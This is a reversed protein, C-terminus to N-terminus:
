GYSVNPLQPGTPLEAQQQAAGPPLQPGAPAPLPVPALPPLQVAPRGHPQPVPALPPLNLTPPAHQPHPMPRQQPPRQAADAPKAYEVVFDADSVEPQPPGAASGGAPGAPRGGGKSYEVVFDADDRRESRGRRERDRSRSRRRESREGRDSRDRDSRRDRDSGSRRDRDSRDRDSRRDRGREEDGLVRDRERRGDRDRDERRDYSTRRDREDRYSSSSRHSSGSALTRRRRQAELIKAHVEHLKKWANYNRGSLHDQLRSEENNIILGSIQCVQQNVLGRGARLNARQVAAKEFAVRQAKLAEAQAAAAQAADVDGQEGLTAARQVLENAQAAMADLRAVDEPNLTAPTDAAVLRSSNADIRKRLDVLLRDFRKLLESEYGYREKSRDDLAEWQKRCNDDHVNPCDYGYDNKTRRFEEYPCFGCIYFKCVSEDDYKRERSRKGQEQLPLNRDQGMLADLQARIDDM